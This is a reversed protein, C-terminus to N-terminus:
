GRLFWVTPIHDARAAWSGLLDARYGHTCVLRVNEDRLLRRLGHAAQLDRRGGGALERVEIGEACAAQALEAGEGGAGTFVGLMQRIGMEYRLQRLLQREPGGVFNSARLHLVTAPTNMTHRGRSLALPGFVWALRSGAGARLRGLQLTRAGLTWRRPGPTAGAGAGASAPRRRPRLKGAHRGAASAHREGGAVRGSGGSDGGRS